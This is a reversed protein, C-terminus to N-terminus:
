DAIVSQGAAGQEVIVKTFTKSLLVNGLSYNLSKPWSCSLTRHDDFQWEWTGTGSDSNVFAPGFARLAEDYTRPSKMRLKADLVVPNSLGSYAVFRGERMVVSISINSQEVSTDAIEMKDARVLQAFTIATVTLLLPLTKM